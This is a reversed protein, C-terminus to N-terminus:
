LFSKLKPNWKGKTGLCPPLCSKLIKIVVKSDISSLYKFYTPKYKIQESINKILCNTLSSSM